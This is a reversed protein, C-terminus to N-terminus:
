VFMLSGRFACFERFFVYVDRKTNKAIKTTLRMSFRRAVPVAFSKWSVKSDGLSRAGVLGLEFVMSGRFACFGRFFVYCREEHEEHNM